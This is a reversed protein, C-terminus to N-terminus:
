SSLDVPLFLSNCDKYATGLSVTAWATSATRKLLYFKKQRERKNKFEKLSYQIRRMELTVLIQKM